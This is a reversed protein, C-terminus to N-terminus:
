APTLTDSGGCAAVADALSRPRGLLYGQGRDVGIRRLTALEGETEIGEAVVHAKWFRALSVLSSVMERAYTNANIGRTITADLKIIDPALSVIHALGAYGAGADDVAFRFGRTRLAGCSDAIAAYDEVFEHETLEIVVRDGPVSAVLHAFADSVLTSASVNVGLFTREPLSPLAALAAEAAKLELEVGVGAQHACAFWADPPRQPDSRFRALAEFGQVWGWALHDIRQFVMEPEDGDLMRKVQEVETDSAPKAAPRPERTVLRDLLRLLRLDREGLAERLEGLDTGRGTPEGAM